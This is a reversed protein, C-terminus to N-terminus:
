KAYVALYEAEKDAKGSPRVQVVELIRSDQGTPMSNVSSSGSGDNDPPHADARLL